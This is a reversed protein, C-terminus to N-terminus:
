FFLVRGQTTLDVNYQASDISSNQPLSLGEAAAGNLPTGATAESGGQLLRRRGKYLAEPSIQTTILGWPTM